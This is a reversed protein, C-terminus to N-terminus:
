TDRFYLVVKSYQGLTTHVAYRRFRKWCLSFIETWKASIAEYPYFHCAKNIVEQSKLNSKLKDVKAKRVNSTKNM